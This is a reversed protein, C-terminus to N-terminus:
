KGYILTRLYKSVEEMVDNHKDTSRTNATIVDNNKEVLKKYEETAKVYAEIVKDNGKQIEKQQHKIYFALAVVASAMGGIAVYVFGKGADGGTEIQLLIGAPVFSFFSFIGVMFFKFDFMRDIANLLNHM